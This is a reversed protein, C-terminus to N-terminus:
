KPPVLRAGEEPWNLIVNLQRPMSPDRQIMLLRKGDPSIDIGEHSHFPL